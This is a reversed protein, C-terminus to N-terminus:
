FLVKVGLQLQRSTTVTRTVRGATALPAENQALGQFVTRTPAAFNAHNLLNFVEFRLQLEGASGLWGLRTNKVLALNLNVYRPGQLSNRGANGFTGQPQLEFGSVDLFHNPDGTSLDAPDVGPKLNPRDAGADSRSWDEGIEATFPVGTRFTVIGNM